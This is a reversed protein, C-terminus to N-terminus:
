GGFSRDDDPDYDFPLEPLRRGDSTYGEQPQKETEEQKKEAYMKAAEKPHDKAWDVAYQRISSAVMSDVRDAEEDTKCDNYVMQVKLDRRALLENLWPLRNKQEEPVDNGSIAKAFVQLDEATGCADFGKKVVSSLVSAREEVSMISRPGFSGDYMSGDQNTYEGNWIRMTQGNVTKVQGPAKQVQEYGTREFYQAASPDARIMQGVINRVNRRIDEAKVGDAEALRFLTDVSEDYKKRVEDPNDSERMERYAKKTLGLKMMAASKATLPLRGDNNAAAIKKSWVDWRSGPAAGEAKKKVYPELASVVKEDVAKKFDPNLLYGAVFMGMAQGVRNPNNGNYILPKACETMLGMAYLRNVSDVQIENEKKKSSNRSLWDTGASIYDMATRDYESIKENWERLVRMQERSDAEVYENSLIKKAM